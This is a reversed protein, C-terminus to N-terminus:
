ELHFRIGSSSNHLMRAHVELWLCTVIKHEL